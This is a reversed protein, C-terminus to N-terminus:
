SYLPQSATNVPLASIHAPRGIRATVIASTDHGGVPCPLLTVELAAQAESHPDLYLGEGSKQDM